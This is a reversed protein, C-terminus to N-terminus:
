TLTSPVMGLCIASHVLKSVTVNRAELSEPVIGTSIAVKGSPIHLNQTCLRPSNFWRREGLVTKKNAVTLTAANFTNCFGATIPVRGHGNFENAVM